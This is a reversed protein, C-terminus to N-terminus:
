LNGTGKQQLFYEYLKPLGEELSVQAEWGLARTKSVDLLKRPMGDPKEADFCIGGKFGTVGMAMRALEEITHDRGSGVNYLGAEIKENRMFFLCAEALDDVYLWERRPRGTGWVVMDKDGRERAEHARRVLAQLVHCSDLDFHDGPGYLNPPMLSLYQLGYQRHYYECLKVGSVKALAYAENTPELVGTLLYEEQMPQPCQRPYICSSALYILRPVGALYAGHIINLAMMLNQYMFEAPFTINAQIGGVRGAAMIICHPKEAALFSTVSKQDLLDLEQSTRLLLNGFGALKLRRVISSGALGRHGTIYIKTKKDM